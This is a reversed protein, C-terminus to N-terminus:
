APSRVRRRSRHASPLPARIPAITAAVMDVFAATVAETEHEQDPGLIWHRRDHGAEVLGRRWSHRTLWRRGHIVGAPPQIWRARDHLRPDRREIASFERRGELGEIARWLSEQDFVRWAVEHARM